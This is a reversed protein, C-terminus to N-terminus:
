RKGGKQRHEHLKAIEYFSKEMAQRFSSQTFDPNIRLHLEIQTGIEEPDDGPFAQHPRKGFSITVGEPKLEALRRLIAQRFVAWAGPHKHWVAGTEIEIEDPMLALGDLLDRTPKDLADRAFSAELRALIEASLSRDSKTAAAELRATLEDPVSAKLQKV